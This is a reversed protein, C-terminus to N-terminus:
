DAVSGGEEQALPDEAPLTEAAHQSCVFPRGLERADLIEAESLATGCIECRRGFNDQLAQEDDIVAGPYGSAAARIAGRGRPQWSTPRDSRSLPTLAM